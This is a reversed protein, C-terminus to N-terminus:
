AALRAAVDDPTEFLWTPSREALLERRAYGWAVAGSALGAQQAADIDRTEDGICLTEGPKVRARRVVKRFQAAKGFLPAGCAYHEILAAAEPGLIRRVNSASNSSVLGLVVGQGALRRLLAKAGPYLKITEADQAVRRRLHGAIFPLQWTPVGLRSLIQRTDCCRLAEIESECVQRFGFRAALPTLEEVMWRASDALTGDFDFIVLKYM